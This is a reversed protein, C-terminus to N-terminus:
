PLALVFDAQEIENEMWNRWGQPPFGPVYQDIWSEVGDTRLRNALNLVFDRHDENDHSYSIFVRPPQPM